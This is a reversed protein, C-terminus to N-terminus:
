YIIHKMYFYDVRVESNTLKSKYNKSKKQYDPLIEPEPILYTVFIFFFIGGFFQNVCFILLVFYQNSFKKYVYLNAYVFGISEVSEPLLDMFSIFIMVGASFSM